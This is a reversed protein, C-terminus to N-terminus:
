PHWDSQLLTCFMLKVITEQPIRQYSPPEKFVITEYLKMGIEKAISLTLVPLPQCDFM